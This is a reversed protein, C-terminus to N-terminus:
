AVEMGLARRLENTTVRCYLAGRRAESEHILDQLKISTENRIAHIEADTYLRAKNRGTRHRWEDQYEAHAVKCPMCPRERHKTHANWGANTGCTARLTPPAKTM